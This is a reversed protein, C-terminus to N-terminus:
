EEPRIEVLAGEEPTRSPQYGTGLRKLFGWSYGEPDDVNFSRVDYDRDEPEPAEVGAAVVRRHMADVDDVWVGTWHKPPGGRSEWYGPGM